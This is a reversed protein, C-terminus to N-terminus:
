MYTCVALFFSLDSANVGVSFASSLQLSYVANTGSELVDCLKIEGACPEESATM